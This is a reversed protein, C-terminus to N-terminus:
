LKTKHFSLNLVLVTSFMEHIKFTRILSCFYILLYM